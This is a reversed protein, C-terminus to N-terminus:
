FKGKKLIVWASFSIMLCGLGYWISHTLVSKRSLQFVDDQCSSMLTIVIFVTMLTLFGTMIIIVPVKLVDIQNQDDLETINSQSTM